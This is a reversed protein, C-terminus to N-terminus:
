LDRPLASEKSLSMKTHFVEEVVLVALAHPRPSIRDAWQPLHCQVDFSHRGECRWHPLDTIVLGNTAFNIVMGAM